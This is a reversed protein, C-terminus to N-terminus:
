TIKNDRKVLLLIEKSAAIADLEDTNIVICNSHELYWEKYFGNLERLFTDDGCRKITGSHVNRQHTRQEINQISADLFFVINSFSNKFKEYYKKKFYEIDLLGKSAYFETVLLTDEIGRDFFIGQRSGIAEHAFTLRDLAIEFYIEQIIQFKDKFDPKRHLARIESLRLNEDSQFLYDSFHSKLYELTTTKGVGPFGVLSYIKTM